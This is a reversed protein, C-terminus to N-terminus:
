EILIPPRQPENLPLGSVNCNRHSFSSNGVFNVTLAVLQVCNSQPSSDASTVNGGAYNVEQSPLYIAGNINQTSGGNLWDNAPPANKDVWLVIGPLGASAGSAPATLTETSDGAFNITGYNSGTSSTLIITVGNGIVTAGGAVDFNGRDLIYTGPNLTLTAGSEVTIGGCYVGPSATAEANAVVRYNTEECGGYATSIGAYPDNVTIAGGEADISLGAYPDPIPQVDTAIPYYPPSSPTNGTYVNADNTQSYGGALFINRVSLTSTGGFRTSDGASSDNYLDCGQLEVNTTGTFTLSRTALRGSPDLAQVCMSGPRGALRAAAKVTVTPGGAILLRSFFQAQPARIVVEVDNAAPVGANATVSVGNQGDAFGYSGTVADVASTVNQGASQAIAGALAAADAAAQMKRQHLEWIGVDTALGCFGVIILVMLTTFVAMVGREDRWLRGGAKKVWRSM